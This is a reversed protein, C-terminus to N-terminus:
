ESESNSADTSTSTGLDKPINNVYKNIDEYFRIMKLWNDCQNRSLIFSKDTCNERHIKISVNKSQLIRKFQEIQKESDFCMYTRAQKYYGEKNFLYTGGKYINSIKLKGSDSSIEVMETRCVETEGSTEYINILLESNLTNINANKVGLNNINIYIKISASTYVNIDTGWIGTIPMDSISEEFNGYVNIAECLAGEVYDSEELELDDEFDLNYYENNILEKVIEKIEDRSYEKKVKFNLQKEAKNGASDSATYKITYDGPSALDVEDDNYQALIKEGSDDTISTVYSMPDYKAGEYYAVNDTALEIIPSTTDLEKVEETTITETTNENSNMTSQGCSSLLILLILLSACYKKKINKM